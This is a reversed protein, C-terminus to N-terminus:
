ASPERQWPEGPGARWACWGTPLDALETVTKDQEVIESLLIISAESPDPERDAHFQWAVDENHYVYLIQRKQEWLTRVTVVAVNEPDAFPWDGM